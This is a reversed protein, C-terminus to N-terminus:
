FFRLAVESHLDLGRDTLRLLPGEVEALGERVLRDIVEAFPARVPEGSWAEIEALDVGRVRRLGTFIRERVLDRAPLEERQAEALGAASLVGEIWRPASRENAFRTGRLQATRDLRFGCAGPGAAVYEAGSWYLGNHVSESGPRAFNSIEYRHLGAAVLAARISEGMAAQEDDGPLKLRGKRVARAMPVDVALATLTLAYCSVHDAGLAAARAADSAAQAESGGEGGHILDVSVAAIGAARADLLAEEAQAPTHERGLARLQGADFSQVGLSIRNVGADRFARLRAGDAVEPNAELTVEASPAVDFLARVEALARALEAPEWLSPTGGGLYISVVRRGEAFDPARRRLEAVIADTFRAQPIVRQKRVAFDCYPCIQLCYPFHLYVGLPLM